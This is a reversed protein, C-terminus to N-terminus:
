FAWRYLAVLLPPYALWSALVSMQLFTFFGAIAEDRKGAPSLTKDSM